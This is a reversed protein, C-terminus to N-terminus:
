TPPLRILLRALRFRLGHIPNPAETLAYGNRLAFRGIRLHRRYPCRHRFGRRLKPLTAVPGYIRQYSRFRDVM